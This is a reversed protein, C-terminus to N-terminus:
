TDLFDSAFRNFLQGSAFVGGIRRSDVIQEKIDFCPNDAAANESTLRADVATIRAGDARDGDAGAYQRTGM